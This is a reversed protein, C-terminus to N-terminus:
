ATSSKRHISRSSSHSKTKVSRGPTSTTQPSKVTITSTEKAIAIFAERMPNLKQTTQNRAAKYADEGLLKAM